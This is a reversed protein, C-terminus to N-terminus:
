RMGGGSHWPMAVGAQPDNSWTRQSGSPFWPSFGTYTDPVYPPVPGSVEHPPSTIRWTGDPQLCEVGWGQRGQGNINITQGFNRCGEPAPPLATATCGALLALLVAFAIPCARTRTPGPDTPTSAL